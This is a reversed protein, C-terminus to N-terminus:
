YNKQVIVAIAPSINRMKGSAVHIYAGGPLMCRYIGLRDIVKFHKQAWELWSARSNRHVHTKDRDLLKVFPGTPGDYVPVVFIFYGRGALASKISQAAAELDDVHELIDFAVIVDFVNRCPLAGADAVFFRGEPHRQHAGGIAFGSIDSGFCRWTKNIYSLFVGFGCGLDLIRGDSGNSICADVLKRYFELKRSPNRRSYGSYFKEFYEKDFKEGSSKM